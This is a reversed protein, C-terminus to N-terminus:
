MFHDYDDTLPWLQTPSTPQDVWPLAQEQGNILNQQIPNFYNTASHTLTRGDLFEVVQDIRRLVAALRRSEALPYWEAPLHNSTIIFRNAVLQVFGGKVPVRLPYRDVVRLFDGISMFDSDFDDLIVTSEGAYGDWWPGSTKRFADPATHAALRSKGCGTLGFFLDCSVGDRRLDQLLFGRLVGLLNPNTAMVELAGQDLLTAISADPSEQVLTIFDSRKVHKRGTNGAGPRLTGFGLIVPESLRGISKGCYDLNAQVSGKAPEWHARVLLQRVIALTRQRDFRVYGQYHPTGNEGAELQYILSIARPWGLSPLSTPLLVTEEDTPNNLTFCWARNGHSSPVAM